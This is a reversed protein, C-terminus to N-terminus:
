MQHSCHGLAAFIESLVLMSYKGDCKEGYFGCTPVDLPIKETRGPFHQRNPTKMEKENIPEFTVAILSQGDHDNTVEYLPIRNGQSDLKVNGSM